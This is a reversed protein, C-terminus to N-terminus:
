CGSHQRRVAFQALTEDKKRYNDSMVAKFSKRKEDDERVGAKNDIIRLIEELYEASELISEPLHEFDVQMEWGLGRLVREARRRLPVDTHKNWRRIALVWQRRHSWGPWAPPDALDPKM